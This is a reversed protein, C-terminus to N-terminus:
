CRVPEKNRPSIVLFYVSYFVNDPLENNNVRMKKRPPYILNEKWVYSQSSLCMKNNLSLFYLTCVGSVEADVLLAAPLRLAARWAAVKWSPHSGAPFVKKQCDSRAFLLLDRTQRSSNGAIETHTSAVPPGRMLLASLADTEYRKIALSLVPEFSNKSTWCCCCCRCCSSRLQLLFFVSSGRARRSRVVTVPAGQTRLDQPQCDQKSQKKSKKWRKQNNQFTFPPCACVCVCLFPQSLIILLPNFSHYLNFYIDSIHIPKCFSNKRACPM